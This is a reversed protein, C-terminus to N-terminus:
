RDPPRAPFDTWKVSRAKAGVLGHWLPTRKERGLRRGKMKKLFFNLTFNVRTPMPIRVGAQRDTTRLDVVSGLAPLFGAECALLCYMFLTLLGQVWIIM